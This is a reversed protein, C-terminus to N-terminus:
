QVGGQPIGNTLEITSEFLQSLSENKCLNCLNISCSVRVVHAHFINVPTSSSATRACDFYVPFKIVYDLVYFVFVYHWCLAKNIVYLRVDFVSIIRM